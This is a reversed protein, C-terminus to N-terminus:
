SAIIEVTKKSEDLLNKKPNKMWYNAIQASLIFTILMNDRYGPKEPMRNEYKNVIMKVFGPEFIGYEKVLKESLFFATRETLKGNQVFSKLDPAMYPLKPRNLISEPINKKYTDTLLFKQKFGNLKFKEDFYFLREVLRHDLFPFRGEIGHSMAMRDGQSSLLYGSLLTRMELFQNKQSLSWNISNEPMLSEVQTIVQNLDFGLNYDKLFYNELIRNNNIRMNLGALPNSYSDLFGEYFMKIMGFQKPDNYHHLHPYLKRLLLPRFKSNPQKSWFNLIKLEKYVDYGWLIEDAGEGTLVVRINTDAVAKSLLFLPAPATRFIPRETHYIVEAFNEDLKQYTIKEEHHTSNIKAVMERQYSSEDFDKDEFAVSFTKLEERNYQKALHTIVSSDIGGSLYAGVPVDSRLRLKVADELLYSFEEKAENLTKPSTGNSEGLQYFRKNVPQKGPEYIEYTGSALSRIGNFVTADGLTNWLLGHSFLSKMDFSRQYGPIVDYAKTESTFYYGGQFHLIYLPRVGYRDRVAILKQNKKDWLLFAFQGNFKAFCSEGYVEFCKIIVETDSTTSFNIGRTKLEERLEIHNYIEGNFSFVFREDEMPQHGGSLDVISLRTHGLSIKESIYLGWADPGRHSLTSVMGKMLKHRESIDGKHGLFGAIGCM